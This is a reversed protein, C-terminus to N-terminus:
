VYGSVVDGPAVGQIPTAENSQGSPCCNWSAFSWASTYTLVPQIISIGTSGSGDNNQSGIFWFLTAGGQAPTPPVTYDAGFYGLYPSSPITYGANDKWSKLNNM